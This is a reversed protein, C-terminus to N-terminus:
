RSGRWPIVESHSASGRLITFEAEGATNVELRVVKTVDYSTPPASGNVVVLSREGTIPTWQDGVVESLAWGLTWAPPNVSRDPMWQFWQFFHRRAVTPRTVDLPTYQIPLFGAGAYLLVPTRQEADGFTVTISRDAFVVRHDPGLLFSQPPGGQWSDDAVCLLSAAGGLREQIAAGLASAIESFPNARSAAKLYLGCARSDDARDGTGYVLALFFQAVPDPRAADGALPRLIRVAEQYDRRLAARIGDETTSQATAPATVLM